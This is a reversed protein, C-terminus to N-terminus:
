RCSGGILYRTPGVDARGAAAELTDADIGMCFPGNRVMTSPGAELTAAAELAGDDIGLCLGNPLRHMTYGPGAHVTAAEELAGNEVSAQVGMELAGIMASIDAAGVATVHNM